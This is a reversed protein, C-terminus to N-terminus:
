HTRAPRCGTVCALYAADHPYDITMRFHRYVNAGLAGVIPGDLVSLWNGPSATFNADPRETFWLPGVEWDGVVLRPVEILRAGKGRSILDDGNDVVRWAPHQGHWRELQSTTIYSTVGFGTPSVETGAAKGADTPHATAGTDLLLPIPEGEVQVTVRLWGNTPQGQDNRSVGLTARHTAPVPKWDDPELWLKRAPYDFTWVHGPLYGSGILGDEHDFATGEVILAPGGCPTDNRAPLGHGPRYDLSAPVDVTQNDVTCTAPTLEARAVASKWLLFWGASGGGGTDVLLRLTHGNALTPTAYFHGAEYVSPVEMRQAANATASAVALAMGFMCISKAM